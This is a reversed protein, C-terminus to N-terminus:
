MVRLTGVRTISQAALCTASVLLCSGVATHEVTPLRLRAIRPRHESESGRTGVKLSKYGESLRIAIVECFKRQSSRNTRLGSVTFARPSDHPPLEAGITPRRTTSSRPLHCGRRLRPRIHALLKPNARRRSPVRRRTPGSSHETGCSPNLSGHVKRGSPATAQECTPPQDRSVAVKARNSVFHM